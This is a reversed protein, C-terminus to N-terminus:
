KTFANSMNSFSRNESYLDKNGEGFSLTNCKPIDTPDGFYIVRITLLETQKNTQINPRKDDAYNTTFTPRNQGFEPPLYM